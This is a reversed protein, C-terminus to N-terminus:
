KNEKEKKTSKKPLTPKPLDLEEFIEEASKYKVVVPINSFAQFFPQCNSIDNKVFLVNNHCSHGFYAGVPYEGFGGTEGFLVNTKLGTGALMHQLSSDRVIAFNDKDEALVEGLVRYWLYPKEISICNDLQKESPLKYQIVIHDPYKKQLIKVLEPFYKYSRVLPEGMKTAYPDLPSTGGDTQILIYKHKVQQNLFNKVDEIIEPHKESVPLSPLEKMCEEIGKRELGFLDRVADNFHIKKRIFDKNNYVNEAVIDCEEDVKILQSYLSVPAQQFAGDVDNIEFIDNYADVIYIGDKYKEKLEKLLCTKQVQQGIGGSCFWVLSAM